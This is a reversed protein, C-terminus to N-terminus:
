ATGLPPALALAQSELAVAADALIKAEGRLMDAMAGRPMADAREVAKRAQERLNAARTRLQNSRDTDEV